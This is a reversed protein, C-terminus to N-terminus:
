ERVTAATQECFQQLVRDFSGAGIARCFAELEMSWAFGARPNLLGLTGLQHGSLDCANMCAYGLLQFLYERSLKGKRPDVCKVDYLTRGSIFDGDSAALCGVKPWRPNYIFPQEQPLLMLM